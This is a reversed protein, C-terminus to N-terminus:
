QETLYGANVWKEDPSIKRWDGNSAYIFVVEGKLVNGLKQFQTGPGSRVNLADANVVTKKVPKVYNAYVWEQRSSSIRHWGGLTEYIRLIAGALTTGIIQGATSSQNRINLSSATVVGHAIPAAATSGNGPTQSVAQEVLPLFHTEAAQLTNGGFFATGPCTKTVGTGNTRAGSNLDFWHHYVIHNTNVPVSFRRCLAATLAVISDRQEATMQDKGSDFYGINEICIAYNNFGYIGAPNMELSRGTAIKGDPFVTFHQAIDSWGNAQHSSLMGALLQFHNNGSFHAYGPIYTHHEQIYLVTRAVQRQQLWWPLEAPTMLTFGNRTEMTKLKLDM